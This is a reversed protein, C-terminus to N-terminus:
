FRNKVIIRKRKITDRTKFSIIESEKIKRKQLTYLKAEILENPALKFLECDSMINVEIYFITSTNVCHLCGGEKKNVEM